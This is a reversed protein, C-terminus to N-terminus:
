FTSLEFGRKLWRKVGGVYEIVQGVVAIILFYYAYVAITEALVEKKFILFIPCFVLCLLAMGAAIRSDVVFLFSILGYGLIISEIIGVKEYLAFILVISVIAIKIWDKKKVKKFERTLKRLLVTLTNFLIVVITKLIKGMRLWGRGQTYKKFNIVAHKAGSIGGQILYNVLTLLGFILICWHFAPWYFFAEFSPFIFSLALSFIYFLFIYPFFVAINDLVLKIINKAKNM